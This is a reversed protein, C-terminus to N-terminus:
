TNPDTLTYGQETLWDQFSQETSESKVIADPIDGDYTAFSGAFGDGDESTVPITAQLTDGGPLEYVDSTPMVYHMAKTM